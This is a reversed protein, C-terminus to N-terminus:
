RFDDLSDGPPGLAPARDAGNTRDLFSPIRGAEDWPDAAPATPPRRDEPSTSIQREEWPPPEDPCASPDSDPESPCINGDGGKRLTCTHLGAHNNSLDANEFHASNTERVSQFTSTIGTEDASACKCVEFPPTSALTPTEPPLYRAWAELFDTRRYGRGHAQGDPHVTTSIIHFGGLLKALGNQTIPKRTRGWECWRSEPDAVLLEVLRRSLIEDPNGESEFVRKIDTLLSTGVSAAMAAGALAKAAARANRGWEEADAIALLLRWNAADRNEFGQPPAPNARRLAEASDAAYRALDSRLEALGDDDLYQFDLAREGRKRRAMEIVITRSMTTDPLKRGKMGVAKPCFTPFLYPENNEGDCRLVGEGRTWGSNVVERLDDNKVFAKDAEDVLISPEWKKVSRYLAAASAGVNRLSRRVLFSIVGLLTTKGSNAEPSTVLLIPSHVAAQEHVWTMAVWLAVVRAADDTMVVHSGTMVVHSRIRGVLRTLLRAPDVPESSPEVQWHPFLPAQPESTKAASVLKDLASVTVDLAKAAIKRQQAYQLPSLKGLDIIKKESDTRLRTQRTAAAREFMGDLDYADTKEDM